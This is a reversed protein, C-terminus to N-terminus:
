LFNQLANKKSKKEVKEKAISEFAGAKVKEKLELLEHTLRDRAQGVEWLQYRLKKEEEEANKEIEEMTKQLKLIKAEQNIEFRAKVYYGVGFSICGLFVQTFSIEM